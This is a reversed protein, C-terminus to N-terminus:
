AADLANLAANVLEGVSVPRQVGSPSASGPVLGLESEALAVVEFLDCERGTIESLEALLDDPRLAGAPLGYVRGLARRM